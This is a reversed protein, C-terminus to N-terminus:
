PDHDAFAAVLFDAVVDVDIDGDVTLHVSGM